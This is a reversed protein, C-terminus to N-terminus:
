HVGVRMTFPTLFRVQQVIHHSCGVSGFSTFALVLLFLLKATSSTKSPPPALHSSAASVPQINGSAKFSTFCMIVHSVLTHVSMVLALLHHFSFSSFKGMQDDKTTINTVAGKAEPQHDESSTIESIKSIIESGTIHEALQAISIKDIHCCDHPEASDVSKNVSKDWMNVEEEDEKDEDDEEHDLNHWFCFAHQTLIM